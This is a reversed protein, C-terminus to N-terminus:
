GHKRQKAGNNDLLLTALQMRCQLGLTPYFSLASRRLGAKLQALSVAEPAAHKMSIQSM